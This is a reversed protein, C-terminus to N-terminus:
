MIALILSLNNLQKFFTIRLDFISGCDALPNFQSHKKPSMRNLLAKNVSVEAIVLMQLEPLKLMDM